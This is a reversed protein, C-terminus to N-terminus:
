RASGDACRLLFGSQQSVKLVEGTHVLMVVARRLAHTTRPACLIVNKRLDAATPCTCPIPERVAAFMNLPKAGPQVPAEDDDADSDIPPVAGVKEGQGGAAFCRLPTLEYLCERLDLPNLPVPPNAAVSPIVRCERPQLRWDLRVSAAAM